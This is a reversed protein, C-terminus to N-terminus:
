ACHMCRLMFGFTCRHCSVWRSHHYAIKWVGDSGRKYTFTYRALADSRVGNADAQLPAPHKTASCRQHQRSPCPAHLLLNATHGCTARVACASRALVGEDQLMLLPKCACSVPPHHFAGGLAGSVLSFIYSGADVAVNPSLLQIYSCHLMSRHPVQLPCEKFPPVSEKM